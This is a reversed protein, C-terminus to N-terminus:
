NFKIDFPLKGKADINGKLVDIAFVQSEPILYGFIKRPVHLLKKLAYPNGFHLVTSLKKSHALCNVVAEIRRTM